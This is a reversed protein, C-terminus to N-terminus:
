GCGSPNENYYSACTDGDDDTYEEDDMCVEWDDSDSSSRGCACCADFATEGEASNSDYYGCETPNENYYSACTDGDEDTYEEDDMCVEWDDSDSSSRGCACCADFATEGEASNDDYSGCSETNATYWDCGDGYDDAYTEDSMCMDPSSANGYLITNFDNFWSPYQSEFDEPSTFNWENGWPGTISIPEQM